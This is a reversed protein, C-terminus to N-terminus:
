EDANQCEKKWARQYSNFLYQFKDVLSLSFATELHSGKHKTSKVFCLTKLKSLDDILSDHLVVYSATAIWPKRVVM